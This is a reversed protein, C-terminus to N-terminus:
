PTVSVRRPLKIALLIGCEALSTLNNVSNNNMGIATNTSPYTTSGAVKTYMAFATTTTINSASGNVVINRTGATSTKAYIWGMYDVITFHGSSVDVDGTSANEITYEETLASASSISWGNTTSLPQENVQPSHGTGYGSGGSGIQTTFANASGNANPRKNVVIIKGPDDLTTGNDVYWDDYWFNVNVGAASSITPSLQSTGTTISGANTQTIELKGNLFV